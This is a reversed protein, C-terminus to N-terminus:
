AAQSFRARCWRDWRWLPSGAGIERREPEPWALYATWLLLMTCAVASNINILNYGIYAHPHSTLWAPQLLDNVALLGLGLSVGFIKSAGSVGMLFMAVIVFGLMGLALVSQSRQLQSISEIMYSTGSTVPSRTLLLALAVGIASAAVLVLSGIKQLGKLPELTMRFVGYLIFLALVSEVAFAAWYIYFYSHYAARKTGFMGIHDHIFRLSLDSALRVVLFSGLARYDKWLGKVSLFCL